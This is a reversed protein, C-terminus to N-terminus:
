ATTTSGLSFSLLEQISPVIVPPTRPPAKPPTRAVFFFQIQDIGAPATPPASTPQWISPPQDKPFLRRICLLILTTRSMKLTRGRGIGPTPSIAIGTCTTMCGFYSSISEGRPIVRTTQLQKPQSAQSPTDFPGSPCLIVLPPQM